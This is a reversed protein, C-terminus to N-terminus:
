DVLYSNKHHYGKTGKFYENIIKMDEEIDGCPYLPESFDIEKNEWDFKCLIIPIKAKLAIYYFGTKLKDVKARKGEPAISLTFAERREFVKVTEDVFNTSKSRNVPEGGLKKLIYGFPPRFLSKKGVFGIQTKLTNRLLIGIPFDWNSTHPVVAIIKKKIHHPYDGTITFGWLKLLIFKAIASLM